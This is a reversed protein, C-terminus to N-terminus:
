NQDPFARWKSCDFSEHRLIPVHVDLLDVCLDLVVDDVSNLIPLENSLWTVFIEKALVIIKM